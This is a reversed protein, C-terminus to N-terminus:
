PAEFVPASMLTQESQMWSFNMRSLEMIKPLKQQVQQALSHRALFASKMWMWVADPDGLQVPQIIHSNPLGFHEFLGEFKDQYAVAAVPMGMGLTAIALHMRGTLVLSCMGAVAKLEDALFESDPLLVHAALGEPINALCQLLMTKDNKNGRFDHPILVISTNFESILRSLAQAAVKVATVEDCAGNVDLLMLHLNFGVVTRGSCTETAIWQEVKTVVESVRPTLCFAADAVLEPDKGISAVFRRASVPDRSFLRIAPNLAQLARACYPDPLSNFSFGLVGVSTGRIRGQECVELARLVTLPWYYGDMVDAGIVALCTASELADLGSTRHKGWIPIGHVNLSELAEEPCEPSTIFSVKGNPNAARFESIAALAMAQDGRSGFPNQPHPPLLVLHAPKDNRIAIASQKALRKIVISRYNSEIWLRIKRVNFHRKMSEPLTFTFLYSLAGAVKRPLLRKISAREDLSLPQLTIGMAMYLLCVLVSVFFVQLTTTLQSPLESDLWAGGLCGLAVMTSIKFLASWPVVPAGGHSLLGRRVCSFWALDILLLAISYAYLGIALSGLIGLLLVSAGLLQGLLMARGCGRALAVHGYTTRLTQSLTFLLFISFYNGGSSFNGGSLMVILQDGVSLSIALACGILIANLKLIISVIKQLRGTNNPDTAASVILPRLMGVLLFSPLYRQLMWALSACFGFIASAEPGTTKLVLLKVIDIGILSGIIQSGYIPAAFRFLPALPVSNEGQTELGRQTRWLLALTIAVGAGYATAELGVLYSLDVVEGHALAILLLSLRIGTRSFLSIQSRGQLLLSDFITEIFRAISEAAVVLHFLAFIQPSISFGLLHSLQAALLSMATALLCVLLIRISVIKLILVRLRPEDNSARYQPVFRESIPSLGFNSLLNFLELYAVLGVYVGYESAPLARVLLLLWCIGIIAGAGKGLVFHGLSRRLNSHGYHDSKKPNQM